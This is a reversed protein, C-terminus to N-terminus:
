HAAGDARRPLPPPPAAGLYWIYGLHPDDASPAFGVRAGLVGTVLKKPNQEGPKALDGLYVDSPPYRAYIFHRGDPLLAPFAIRAQNPELV